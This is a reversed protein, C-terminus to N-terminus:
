WKKRSVSEKNEHMLVYRDLDNQYNFMEVELPSPEENLRKKFVHNFFIIMGLGLGISYPIQFILPKEVEKGTIIKYLRQHADQMSVDEHFNMITLMSGFFLLFWILLFFVPSIKRKKYVVEIIMQSPGILQVEIAPDVKKLNEVIQMIDMIIINRDEPKVQYLVMEKIRNHLHEEAIIQAIDKILIKDNPQVLVRHRLRIYVSKELMNVDWLLM